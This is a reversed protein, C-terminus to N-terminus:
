RERQLQDLCKKFVDQSGRQYGLFDYRLVAHKDIFLTRPVATVGLRRTLVSDGSLLIQDATLFDFKHSRLFSSRAEEPSDSTNIFYFAVGPYERSMENLMKLEPICNSCAFYFFDVVAVKGRLLLPDLNKGDLNLAKISDVKELIYPSKTSEDVYRLRGSEDLSKIRDQVSSALESDKLTRALSLYSFLAMDSTSDIDIAKHLYEKSEFFRGRSLEYQGLLSYAQYLHYPVTLSPIAARLLTAAWETNIDKRMLLEGIWLKNVALSDYMLISDATALVLSSDKYLTSILDLKYSYIAPKYVSNPFDELFRQLSDLLTDCSEVSSFTRTMNWASALQGFRREQEQSYKSNDSSFLIGGIFILNMLHKM